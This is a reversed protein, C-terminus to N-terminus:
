SNEGKRPRPLIPFRVFKQRRKKEASYMNVAHLLDTGKQEGQEEWGGGTPRLHVCRNKTLLPPFPLQNKNQVRTDFSTPRRFSGSAEKM